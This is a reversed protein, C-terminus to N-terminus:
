YNIVKSSYEELCILHSKLKEVQSYLKLNDDYLKDRVQKATNLENELRRVEFEKEKINQDQDELQKEKEIRRKVEDRSNSNIDEIQRILEQNQTKLEALTKELTHQERVTETVQVSYEQYYDEKSKLKSYIKKNEYHLEENLSYLKKREDELLKIEEEQELCRKSLDENDVLLRDVHSRNQTKIDRLEGIIRELEEKEEQLRRNSEAYSSIQIKLKSLEAAKNEVDIQLSTFDNFLM